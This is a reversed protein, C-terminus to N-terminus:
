HADITSCVTPYLWDSCTGWSYVVYGKQTNASVESVLIPLIIDTVSKDWKQQPLTPPPPPPTLAVHNTNKKNLKTLSNWLHKQSRRYEAM